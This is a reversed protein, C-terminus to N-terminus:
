SEQTQLEKRLMTLVPAVQPMHNRWISFSKAAQGVLMGLGDIVKTAGQQRAWTLFPTPAKSYSMDYCCVDENIINTPIEPIKGSLSSSTANIILDYSGTLEDFGCGSVIDSDAQEALLTAKAKTRNAITLSLPKEALLSAVVGKAAGGAGLMLINAQSLSVGQTLLDQVLGFGDTNDGYIKGGKFSLTNVAGSKAAVESLEDCLRMAEEKFPATVNAGKGGEAIFAQVAQAFSDVEPAYKDYEIDQNLAQAFARHIVPSKSQKIPNGFVRYKDM